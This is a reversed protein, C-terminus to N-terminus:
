LEIIQKKNKRSSTFYLLNSLTLDDKMEEMEEEEGSSWSGDSLLTDWGEKKTDNRNKHITARISKKWMPDIIKLVSFRFFCVCM